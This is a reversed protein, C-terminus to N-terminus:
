SGSSLAPSGAPPNVDGGDLPEPDVHIRTGVRMTRLDALRAFLEPRGDDGQGGGDVGMQKRALWVCVLVAVALPSDSVIQNLAREIPYRTEAEWRMLMRAPTDRVRDMDLVLVDPAGYQKQDEDCLLLDIKM